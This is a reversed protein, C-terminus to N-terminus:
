VEMPKKLVTYTGDADTAATKQQQLSDETGQVVHKEGLAFSEAVQSGRQANVATAGAHIDMQARMMQGAPGVMRGHTGESISRLNKGYDVRMEDNNVMGKAAHTVAGVQELGVANATSGQAM